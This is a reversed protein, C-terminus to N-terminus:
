IEPAPVIAMPWQGQKSTLYASRYRGFDPDLESLPTVGNGHCVPPDISRVKTSVRFM